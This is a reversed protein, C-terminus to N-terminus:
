IWRKVGEKRFFKKLREKSGKLVEVFQMGMRYGEEESDERVWQVRGIVFVPDDFGQLDLEITIEKGVPVESRSFLGIGSKSFDLTRSQNFANGEQGEVPVLCEMRHNKRQNKQTVM